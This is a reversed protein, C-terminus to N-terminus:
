PVGTSARVAAIVSSKSTRVRALSDYLVQFVIVLLQFGYAAHVTDLACVCRLLDYCVSLPASRKDAHNDVLSPMWLTPPMHQMTKVIRWSAPKVSRRQPIGLDRLQKLLTRLM